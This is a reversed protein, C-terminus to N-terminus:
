MGKAAARVLLPWRVRRPEAPPWSAEIRRMVDPIPDRGVTKRYRGVASWTTLYGQLERPTWTAEMRIEPPTIEPYPLAIGVYGSDVLARESPWYGGLTEHYLEHLVADTTPDIAFLGYSWVAVVGRPKLVRDVEGFFRALDFWHLAQAVAVLDITSAGLAVVEASMAAYHVRDARAASSLQSRSADTAVVDDFYRALDTAAQGTGTGCDWACAHGPTIAGLWSFLEDPYHPRFGAYSASAFGFHDRFRATM